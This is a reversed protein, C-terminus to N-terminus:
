ESHWSMDLSHEEFTLVNVMLNSPVLHSVDRSQAFVHVIIVQLWVVVPSRM